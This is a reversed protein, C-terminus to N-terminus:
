FRLTDPSIKYVESARHNGKKVSDYSFKAGGWNTDIPNDSIKDKSHFIDDLPTNLGIYQNMPDFGPISNPDHSGYLKTEINIQRNNLPIAQIPLINNNTTTQPPLGPQSDASDISPTIKYTRNGQTDYIQQLYLVPCEIDEKYLVEMFKKYDELTNFKVPNQGQKIPKKSNYLLIHDEKKLLLNPCSHKKKFLNSYDPLKFTSNMYFTIYYILGLIFVTFYLSFLIM